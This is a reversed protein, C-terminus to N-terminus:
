YLRDGDDAVMLLIQWEGHPNYKRLHPFQTFSKVSLNGNPINHEETPLWKFVEEREWKTIPIKPLPSGKLLHSYQRALNVPITACADTTTRPILTKHVTSVDHSGDINNEKVRNYPNTPCLAEDDASVQFLTTPLEAKRETEVLLQAEQKGHYLNVPKPVDEALVEFSTITSKAERETEAETDANLQSNESSMTLSVVMGEMRTEAKINSVNPLREASNYFSKKTVKSGYLVKQILHQFKETYPAKCDRAFHGYKKCNRCKVSALQMAYIADIEEETLTEVNVNDENAPVDTLPELMKGESMTEAETNDENTSLYHEFVISLNVKGETATYPKHVIPLDVKEETTTNARSNDIHSCEESNTRPLTEPTTPTSSREKIHGFMIFSSRKNVDAMQAPKALERSPRQRRTTTTGDEKSVTSITGTRPTWM